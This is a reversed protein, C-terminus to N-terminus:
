WYGRYFVLVVSSGRLSALSVQGEPSTLEFDPAPSGVRVRDLDSASQALLAVAALLANM